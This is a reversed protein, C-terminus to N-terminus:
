LLSGHFPQTYACRHVSLIYAKENKIGEKQRKDSVDKSTGYVFGVFVRLDIAVRVACDDDCTEVVFKRFIINLLSKRLPTTELGRYTKTM